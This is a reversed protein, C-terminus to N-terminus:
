EGLAEAIMERIKRSRPGDFYEHHTSISVKATKIFESRRLSRVVEDLETLTDVAFLGGAVPESVSLFIQWLPM